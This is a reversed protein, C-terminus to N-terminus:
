TVEEAREHKELAQCRTDVLATLETVLRGWDIPHNRGCVHMSAMALDFLDGFTRCEGFNAYLDNEANPSAKAIAASIPNDYQQKDKAM